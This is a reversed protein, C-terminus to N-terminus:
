ENSIKEIRIRYREKDHQKDYFSSARDVIFTLAKKDKSLSLLQEYGFSNVQNFDFHKIACFTQIHNQKSHFHNTYIYFGYIACPFHHFTM